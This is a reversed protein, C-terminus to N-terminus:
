WASGFTLYYHTDEPGRAVDTGVHMGLRRAIYYRIGLGRAARGPEEGFDGFSEAVKGVGAFGILSLRDHFAWRAEIEALAMAEGQYRLAPIGRMDIFPMLFFPTDGSVREAAARLGLVWRDGIQSYFHIHSEISSYELDSGLQENYRMAAFAFDIGHNPTFTSDLDEYEISPGLGSLTVDLTLPPFGPIIASTDFATEINVLEYEVGAFWNSRGIRFDLPQQLLVAEATFEFGADSSFREGEIGYFRLNLKARGLLGEYRIRDDKWHAVHAAGALWSSNNTAAAAVATINPVVFEEPEGNERTADQDDDRTDGEAPSFFLVAAGLGEGIAPETIALPVPMFGASNELVFDSVDLWGDSDRFQSFFGQGAAPLATTQGLLLVVTPLIHRSDTTSHPM